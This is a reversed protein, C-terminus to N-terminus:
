SGHGDRRAGMATRIANAILPTSDVRAYEYPEYLGTFRRIAGTKLLSEIFFRIKRHNCEPEFVFVPKGTSVAEGVMNVSDSTTVICDCCALLPLYPNGGTGDWMWGNTCHALATAADRLAPPTRRSATIALSVGSRSLNELRDLLQGIDKPTYTHHASDGGLLVAARPSPLTALWAPPTSRAKALGEPTIRHPSTLTSLVNSGRLRDHEPVWILDATSAGTRPDKLFVTFTAPNLKKILRLYPITRRGSAIVLDPFPPAIPSQPHRPHEAPDISGWPMLWSWPRRPSIHRTQPTHGLREAVGLCQIDDGAKGDTLIWSKM